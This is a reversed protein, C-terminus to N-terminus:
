IYLLDWALGFFRTNQHIKTNKLPLVKIYLGNHGMDALQPAFQTM